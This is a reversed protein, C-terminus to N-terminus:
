LVWRGFSAWLNVSNEGLLRWPVWREGKLVRLLSETEVQELRILITILAEM